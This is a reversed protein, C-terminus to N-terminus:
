FDCMGGGCCTGSTECPPAQGSGLSSKNIIQGGNALKKVNSDPNTNGPDIGAQQCLDGWTEIMEEMKHRVEVVQGNTECIYDYTPM